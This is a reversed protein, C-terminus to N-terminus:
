PTYSSDLGKPTSKEDTHKRFIAFNLARAKRASATYANNNNTHETSACWGDLASRALALLFRSALLPLVELEELYLCELEELYLCEDLSSLTRM